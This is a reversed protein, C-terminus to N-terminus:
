ASNESAQTSDESAQTPPYGIGHRKNPFVTFVMTSIVGIVPPAAMLVRKQNSEFSPYYCSVTNPDMLAMVAFVILSLAAHIFDSFQLKYSSLDVSGTDSKYFTWMGKKTVIGYHIIGDSGTYSDTFSSFCCSFSCLTLLAGTLYKNITSCHGNNSLVPSLFQFLFVTGTPLLKILNGVGNLTKDGITQQTSNSKSKTLPVEAM